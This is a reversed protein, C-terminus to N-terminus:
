LPFLSLLQYICTDTKCESIGEPSTQQKLGTSKQVHRRIRKYIYTFLFLILIYMHQLHVPVEM